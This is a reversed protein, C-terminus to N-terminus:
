KTKPVKMRYLDRNSTHPLGPCPIGDEDRDLKAVDGYFPRYKDFWVFAEEYTQFDSCGKIDGPNAPPGTEKSTVTRLRQKGGDDTWVTEMTRELQEFQAQVVPITTSIGGDGPHFTDGDCKSFIGLGKVQAQNQLSLLEAPSVLYSPETTTTSPTAQNTVKAFGTKVLERNIVVSDEDRVLIVTQLKNNTSSGVRQIRVVTSKPILQRIKYSPSYPFCEPFHFSGSSSTSPMRVMALRVVGKKKLQITNADLIREVQDMELLSVEELQGFALHPIISSSFLPDLTTQGVLRGNESNKMLSSLLTIGQWLSLHAKSTAKSGLSAVDRYLPPLSPPPLSVNSLGRTLSLTVAVVAIFTSYHSVNRMKKTQIADYQWWLLLFHLLDDNDTRIIKPDSLAHGHYDLKFTPNERHLTRLAKM